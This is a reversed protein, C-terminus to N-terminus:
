TPKPGLCSIDLELVDSNGGRRFRRGLWAEWWLRYHSSARPQSLDTPTVKLVPLMADDHRGLRKLKCMVASSGDAMVSHPRDRKWGKLQEVKLVPPVTITVWGRPSRSGGVNFIRFRLEVQDGTYADMRENKIISGREYRFSLRLEVDRRSLWLDVATLVAAILAGVAAITGVVLTWEMLGWSSASNIILNGTDEPRLTRETEVADCRGARYDQASM